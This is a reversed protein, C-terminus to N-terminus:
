RKFTLKSIRKSGAAFATSDNIFRVTYFGEKSLNKWSYGGDWSYDIGKFGVALLEKADSNPFYQVCSRYGPGNGVEIAKWTKGGDVTVIKNRESADAETYDGGIAFGNKDDYFDISYMGTTPKGQIIPTEFVTWTLGKDDSYLVRSVMGGTAIWTHNEFISINTNSAAFAAEGDKSKPLDSCEIKTWNHGGDRTIIISMCDETPDGIAIGEKDNWFAMADYFVKDHEEKYVLEMVGSDGTKYLLAPNGASLTFFDESTHGVARFETLLSDPTNLKGMSMLQKNVNYLGYRSANASFALNGDALVEIARISITSDLFVKSIEVSSFPSKKIAQEQECNFCLAALFLFILKQM